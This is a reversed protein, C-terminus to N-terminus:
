CALKAPGVSCSIDYSMCPAVTDESHSKLFANELEYEYILGAFVDSGELGIASDESELTQWHSCIDRHLQHLLDDAVMNDFAKSTGRADRVFKYDPSFIAGLM